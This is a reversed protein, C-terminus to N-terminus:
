SWITNKDFYKDSISRYTRKSIINHLTNETVHFEFPELYKQIKEINGNFMCIANCVIHIDDGMIRKNIAFQDKDFYMDSIRTGTKKYKIDYIMHYTVYRIGKDILANYVAKCNGKHDLLLQCVTHVDDDTLKGMGNHEGTMPPILGTTFGHRINESRTTWELNDAHNNSKNGDKHNVEDHLEDYGPVFMWAVIRHIKLIRSKEDTCRFGLMWYGKESQCPKLVHNTKINRFNGYNSVEYMDPKINRYVIPKWIETM